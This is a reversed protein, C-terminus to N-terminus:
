SCHYGMSPSWGCEYDHGDPCVNGYRSTDGQNLINNVMETLAAADWEDYEGNSAKEKIKDNVEQMLKKFEEELDFM